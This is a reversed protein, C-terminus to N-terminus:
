FRCVLGPLGPACRPLRDWSRERACARPRSNGAARVSRGPRPAGGGPGLAMALLAMVKAPLDERPTQTVLRASKIAAATHPQYQSFSVRGCLLGAAGSGVGVGPRGQNTSRAALAPM